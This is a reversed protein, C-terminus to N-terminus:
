YWIFLKCIRKQRDFLTEEESQNTEEAIICFLTLSFGAFFVTLRLTEMATTKTLKCFPQM